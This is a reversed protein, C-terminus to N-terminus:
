GTLTCHGEAKWIGRLIYSYIQTLLNEAQKKTTVTAIYYTKGDKRYRGRYKGTRTKNISGFLRKNIQPEQELFCDKFYYM